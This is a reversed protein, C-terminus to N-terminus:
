LESRFRWDRSFMKRAYSSSRAATSIDSVAHPLYETYSWPTHQAALLGFSETNVCAM